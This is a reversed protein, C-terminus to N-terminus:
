KYDHETTIRLVEVVIKKDIVKYIIRGSYSFSSSRCEQWKQDRILKHDNWFASDQLKEPGHKEVFNIWQRIVIFDNENLNKEKILKQIDKEAKKDVVVKWTM